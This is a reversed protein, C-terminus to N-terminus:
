MVVFFSLVFCEKTKGWLLRMQMEVWEEVRGTLNNKQGQKQSHSVYIYAEACDVHTDPTQTNLSSKLMVAHM